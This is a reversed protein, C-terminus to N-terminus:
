VLTRVHNVWKTASTVTFVVEHKGALTTGTLTFQLGPTLPLFKNNITTSRRYDFRGISFDKETVPRDPPDDDDALVSPVPLATLVAVAATLLFRARKRRM